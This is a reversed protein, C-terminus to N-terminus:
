TKRAYSRARDRSGSVRRLLEHPTGHGRRNGLAVRGRGGDAVVELRLRRDQDHAARETGLGDVPEALRQREVGLPRELEHPHDARAVFFRDSRGRVAVV